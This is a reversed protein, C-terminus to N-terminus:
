KGEHPTPMITCPFHHKTKCTCRRLLLRCTHSQM